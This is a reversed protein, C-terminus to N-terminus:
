QESAKANGKVLPINDQLDIILKIDKESAIAEATLLLPALIAQLEVAELDKKSDPLLFNNREISETDSLHVLSNSLIKGKRDQSSPLAKSHIPKEKIPTVSVRNVETEFQQLLGSLRDSERLISEAFSKNPSEPLLKKILLKSFTKLATLPNRLQHLLDDLRDQQWSNAEQQLELQKRYWQSQRDMFWAIALTQAINEVQELERDQWNRDERAVILLGMVTNEHILPLFLQKHDVSDSTKLYNSWSDQAVKDPLLLNPNNIPESIVQEWIEPLKIGPFKPYLQSETQPYIIFPFLNTEGNQISEETLYVASWLAGLAQTLLKIQSQCLLNFEPSALNYSYPM